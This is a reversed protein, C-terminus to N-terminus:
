LDDTLYRGREATAAKAWTEMITNAVEIAKEEDNPYQKYSEDIATSMQSFYHEELSENIQGKFEPSQVLQIFFYTALKKNRDKTTFFLPYSVHDAFAQLVEEPTQQSYHCMQAFENSVNINMNTPMIYNM